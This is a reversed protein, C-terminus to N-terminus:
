QFLIPLNRKVSLQALDILRELLFEGDVDFFCEYLDKPVIGIIKAVKQKWASKLPIPPLSRFEGAITTLEVVLREADKPTWHGDCDSHLMLTPFRTGLGSHELQESVADRFVAFDEYLGIDVWDLEQNCAFVTLNLGM